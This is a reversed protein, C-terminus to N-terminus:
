ILKRFYYPDVTDVFNNKTSGMEWIGMNNEWEYLLDVDEPELPRLLIKGYSLHNNMKKNLLSTQM